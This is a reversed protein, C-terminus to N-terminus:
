RPSRGALRERANYARDLRDLMRNTTIPDLELARRLRDPDRRLAVLMPVYSRAKIGLSTRAMDARRQMNHERCDAEFALIQQVTLRRVASDRPQDTM